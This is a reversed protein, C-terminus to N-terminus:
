LVSEKKQPFSLLKTQMNPTFGGFVWISILLAGLLGIGLLTTLASVNEQPAVPPPNGAYLNKEPESPNNSM